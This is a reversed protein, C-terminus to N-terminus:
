LAERIAFGALGWSGVNTSSKNGSSNKLRFLGKCNACQIATGDAPQDRLNPWVRLTADGSGDSAVRDLIKYLRYGIQIFDGVLLLRSKSPSWGRTVLTYGTQAAGAVVPMGSPSGKPERAKPDGLMFANSSGRCQSIFATWYDHSLRAMPTFSVQAEWWSNQWDYTQVQGTFSAPGAAVMEQPDWEISSPGRVGADLDCPLGVINLGNFTGVISM